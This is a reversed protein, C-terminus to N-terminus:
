DSLYDRNERWSEQATHLLLEEFFAVLVTKNKHGNHQKM